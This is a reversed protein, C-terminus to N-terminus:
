LLADVFADVEFPRLDDVGEGIGIWKVPTHLEHAISFVMGGKATGDLKTVVVGTIPTAEHFTRAQSMANQGMTGDLVLLTEHPAGPVKRDIVKRIKTLEEMLPKKTQLRGATDIIVVQAGRSKAADLADFVVAAPDAGEGQRVIEAGARDAWIALQEAAAARYTDGAAVLVKKGDRVFRAALKGITTTKGSGNVGVVLIVFPGEAPGPGFPASVSSLMGRLDDRLGARLVAGDTTGARVRARLGDLVRETTALGVDSTLLTEELETLMAEDVVRGFLGDFRASLAERTRSMRDRLRATLGTPGDAVISPPLAIRPVDPRQADELQRRARRRLVAWTGLGLVVVGGLLLPALPGTPDLPPVDAILALGPLVM